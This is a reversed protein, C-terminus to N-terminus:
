NLSKDLAKGAYGFLDFWYGHFRCFEGYSESKIAKKISQPASQVAVDM